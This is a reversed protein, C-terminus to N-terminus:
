VGSASGESEFTHYFDSFVAALSCACLADGDLIEIALGVDGRNSVLTPWLCCRSVAM